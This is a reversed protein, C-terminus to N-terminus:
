EWLSRGKRTRTLPHDSIGIVGARAAIRRGAEAMSPQELMRQRAKVGLEIGIKPDVVLRRMWDAAQDLDPDAWKAAKPYIGEGHEVHVLRYDIMAAVSEDMFDVNGSYATAIVPKGLAMTEALGLGFGEARHLSVYCDCAALMADREAASVHREILHVHPHRSAATRLRRASEPDREANISKLVLQPGDGPGFAATFAELVGLPNKREFVSNYDFTFLFLFGDEPLGLAARPLRPPRPVRVPLTVLQVPVPSVPGISDLAHRSGVWVEDLPEFAGHYEAPFTALEWWWLGINWRGAFFGAGVDAAFAPLGDANVCILNVAFPNALAEASAFEDGRRTPPLIAGQVPLAPVHVRDLADVM